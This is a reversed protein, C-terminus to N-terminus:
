SLKKDLTRPGGVLSNASPVHRLGGMQTPMYLNPKKRLEENGSNM